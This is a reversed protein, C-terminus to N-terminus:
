AAANDGGAERWSSITAALEADSVLPPDTYLDGVIREVFPVFVSAPYHIDVSFGEGHLFVAVCDDTCRCIQVDGRGSPSEPPCYIGTIAVSIDVIWTPQQDFGLLLEYPRSSGYGLSATTIWGTGTDSRRIRVIVREVAEREKEM